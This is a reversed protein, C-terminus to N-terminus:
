PQNVQQYVVVAQPPLKVKTGGGELKGGFPSGEGGWERAASDLL